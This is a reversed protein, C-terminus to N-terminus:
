EGRRSKIRAAEFRVGRCYGLLAARHNYKKGLVSGPVCTRRSGGPEAALEKAGRRAAAAAPSSLARRGAKFQMRYAARTATEVIGGDYESQQSIVTKM